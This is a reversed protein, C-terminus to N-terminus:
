AGLARLIGLLERTCDAWSVARYESVVRATRAELYQRDLLVREIQAFANEEDTPDFYNILDGGIQPLSSRNSCVCFKGAALGEAVPLGWGEGLSAYVTFLCRRYAERLTADSCGSILVVKGGFYGSTNLEEWFSENKWGKGGVLVLHPVADNGHRDLLRKWVRLLFAHNKRVEITSVILVFESPLPFPEEDPAIANASFGDGFRITRIPPAPLRHEACYAEIECRNQEASTVILDSLRLTDGLAKRFKAAHDGPFWQAETVPMIDHVFMVFKMGFDRKLIEIDEPYRESQLPSTLCIVVDGPGVWNEFTPPNCWHELLRLASALTHVPAPQREPRPRDFGASGYSHLESLFESYELRQCKFAVSNLRFVQVLSGFEQYAATLIEICVRQIGTLHGVADLFALLSNVEFWVRPTRRRGLRTLAATAFRRIGLSTALPRGRGALKALGM